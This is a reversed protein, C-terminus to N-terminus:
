ESAKLFANEEAPSVVKTALRRQRYKDKGAFNALMLEAEDELCLVGQNKCHTAILNKVLPPDTICVNALLCTVELGGGWKSRGRM